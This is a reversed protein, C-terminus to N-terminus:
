TLSKELTLACLGRGELRWLCGHARWELTKQGGHVEHSQWQKSLELAFGLPLRRRRQEGHRMLDFLLFILEVQLPRALASFDGEWYVAAGGDRYRLASRLREREEALWDELLGLQRQSRRVGQPLNPVLRMLQPLVERRYFNRQIALDFNSTDEWHPLQHIAVWAQLDRRSWDLLPRWLRSPLLGPGFPPLSQWEAMGALAAPGAGRGLNMFFSELQDDGHQGLVLCGCVAKPTEGRIASRSHARQLCHQLRRYRERRALDELSLGRRTAQRRLWGSRIRYVQLDFGLSRCYADLAGKEAEPHKDRIGHRIYCPVLPRHRRDVVSCLLHLLACSDLGGSIAVVVPGPPLSRSRERLQLWLKRLKANALHGDSKQFIRPRFPGPMECAPVQVSM